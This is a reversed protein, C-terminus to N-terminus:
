SKSLIRSMMITSVAPGSHQLVLTVPVAPGRPAPLVNTVPPDSTSPAPSPDQQRQAIMSPMLDTLLLKLRARVCRAHAHAVQSGNTPLKRKRKRMHIPNQLGDAPVRPPETERPRGARAKRPPNVVREGPASLASAPAPGQAAVEPPFREDWHRKMAQLLFDAEGEIQVAQGLM